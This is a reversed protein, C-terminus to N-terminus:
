RAAVPPTAAAESGTFTGLRGSQVLALFPEVLDASRWGCRVQDRLVNSAQEVSIARQYPRKTTIADFV